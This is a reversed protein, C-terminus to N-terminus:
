ITIRYERGRPMRDKTPARDFILRDSKVAM